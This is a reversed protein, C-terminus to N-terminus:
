HKVPTFVRRLLDLPITASLIARNDKQEIQVSHILAAMDADPTGGLNTRLREEGSYFSLVTRALTASVNAV